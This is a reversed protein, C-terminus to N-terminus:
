ERELLVVNEVHHTHPFMDVAQSVAARYGGECLLALDRAQTAPNCSVYVIKCPAAGLIVQVVAPHMGARPPDTVIVDPKGYRAIFSPTLLDKMDGVFFSTNTIGNIRSNLQADAIAEPVSEIGVVQRARHALFNAITGTGTYLDYVMEEGTLGALERAISYLHYAQKSNTQFFSKASIRFTLGEMEEEIYDSGYYTHMDVDYLADNCKTNIAYQLSTLQPFAAVIADLLAIRAAEKERAFVVLLLSEGKSTTRVMLNRMFGEQSRLDFYPYEELRELTFRRIFTRLEDSLRDGLHCTDIDLVKDFRGPIHFGLGRREADSVNQDGLVALEEFPVWRSHSFTFELKNRYRFTEECGIISRYEAVEIGGLRQLADKVQQEKAELQLNYPVHQWKCGGCVGFHNCRPPIRLESPHEIDVIRCQAWNKKKRVVELTCIDGPAAYPVMLAMGEHHAICNGEAAMREITIGDYRIPEKRKRRM